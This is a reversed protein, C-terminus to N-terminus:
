NTQLSLLALRIDFPLGALRDEWGNRFNDWNGLHIMFHARGQHLKKALDDANSAHVAPITEQEGVVGDVTVGLVTQMFEVARWEGNNVAADFLTMAVIPPLEDGHFKDWYDRKYIAQADALTLNAIDVTPYSAASVGFKSGALTGVGVQGSTWNGRDNYTLDLTSGEEGVTVRFAAIFTPNM